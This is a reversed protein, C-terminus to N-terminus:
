DTSPRNLGQPHPHPTGRSLDDSGSRAQPRRHARMRQELHWSGGDDHSIHGHWLFSDTTIENFSWRLSDKGEAGTVVIRDQESRGTLMVYTRSIPGFWAAKWDGAIPDYVRVTTGRGLEGDACYHLLVDQIGRGDLIWDFIWLGSTRWVPEDEPLFEIELDWAGVFQGFTALEDALDSLPGSATLATLLDTYQDSVIMIPM